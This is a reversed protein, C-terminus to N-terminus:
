NKGNIEDVSQDWLKSIPNIEDDFGPVYREVKSEFVDLLKAPVHGRLQEIEYRCPVTRLNEWKDIVTARCMEERDADDRLLENVGNIQERARKNWQNICSRIRHSRRAHPKLDALKTNKIKM